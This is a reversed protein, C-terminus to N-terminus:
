VGGHKFGQAVRKVGAFIFSFGIKERYGGCVVKVGSNGSHNTMQDAPNAHIFLLPDNSTFLTTTGPSLTVITTTINM